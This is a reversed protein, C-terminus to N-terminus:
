VHMPPGPPMSGISDSRSALANCALAACQLRIHPYTSTVDLSGGHIRVRSCRDGTPNALVVVHERDLALFPAVVIVNDDSGQVLLVKIAPRPCCYVLSVTWIRPEMSQDAEYCVNSARNSCVGQAEVLMSRLVLGSVSNCGLPRSTESTHSNSTSKTKTWMEEGIYNKDGGPM